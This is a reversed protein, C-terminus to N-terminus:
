DWDDLRKNARTYVEIRDNEDMEPWERIESPTRGCGRCWRHENLGCQGICASIPVNQNQHNESM